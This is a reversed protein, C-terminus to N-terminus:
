RETHNLAFTYIVSGKKRFNHYRGGTAIVTIYQKGNEEFCIPMASSAASMEYSWLENGNTADLAVLNADDTGGAIVLNGATALLGGFNPTGIKVVRGDIIISGHPVEWLKERSQLDLAVVKGWPPKSGPRDKEDLLKSWDNDVYLNDTRQNIDDWHRFYSRLSGLDVASLGKLEGGPHREILKEKSLRNLGDEYLTFGSLSPVFETEKEGESSFTGNRSEGHCSECMQQYISSGESQPEHVYNSAQKYYLRVKWPDENVAIYMIKSKPDIAAGHWEAGGHLGFTILLKGLEPPQFRGFIAEQVQQYVANTSEPSLDTIRDLSFSLDILAMAPNVVPQFQSVIEGPVKSQPATEYDVPFIPVGTERDLILTNGIKTPVVVVRREGDEVELLALIPSSPIDYDWLDHMVEQHTWSVERNIVDIAVVSNANRNSGPRNVGYLAPAPNGTSLFLMGLEHDFAMGAWPSGGGFSREADHLSIRWLIEGTTTSLSLLESSSAIAVFVQSNWVVPSIYSNGVTVRGETGFGAILQGTDADLAFLSKGSPVFLMSTSENQFYVFGRRAPSNVFAFEWDLEGSVANLAVLKRGATLSYVKGNAYLPNAEVNEIWQSTVEESDMSLFKWALELGGVNDRDIESFPCFNNSDIGGSQRYWRFESTEGIDESIRKRKTSYQITGPDDVFYGGVELSTSLRHGSSLPNTSWRLKPGAGTLGNGSIGHCGACRMYADPLPGQFEGSIYATVAEVASEADIVAAPMGNPFSESGPKGNEIVSRIYDQDYKSDRTDRYSKAIRVLEYLWVHEKLKRKNICQNANSLVYQIGLTPISSFCNSYLYRGTIFTICSFVCMLILIRKM